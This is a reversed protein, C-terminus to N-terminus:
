LYLSIVKKVSVRFIKSLAWVNFIDPKAVVREWMSVAAQTVGLKEALKMQSLGSSLRLEKFTKM